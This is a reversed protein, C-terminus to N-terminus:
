IYFLYTFPASPRLTRALWCRANHVLLNFSLVGCSLDSGRRLAILSARRRPGNMLEWRRWLYGLSCWQQVCCLARTLASLTGVVFCWLAFPFFFVSDLQRHTYHGTNLSSTVIQKQLPHTFSPNAVLYHKTDCRSLKTRPLVCGNWLIFVLFRERHIFLLYLTYKAADPAHTSLPQGSPPAFM